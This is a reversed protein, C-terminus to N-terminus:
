VTNLILHDLVHFFYRLNDEFLEDDSFAGNITLNGSYFNQRYRYEITKTKTPFYPTLLIDRSLGM